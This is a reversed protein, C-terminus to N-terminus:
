LISNILSTRIRAIRSSIAVNSLAEAMLALLISTTVLRVATQVETRRVFRICEDLSRLNRIDFAAEHGDLGVDALARRAGEEPPMCSM